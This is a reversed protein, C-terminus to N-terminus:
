RWLSELTNAREGELRTREQIANRLAETNFLSPVYSDNEEKKAKLEADIRGLTERLKANENEGLSGRIAGAGGGLVAGTLAGDALSDNGYIYDILAGVPMGALAGFVADRSASPEDWFEPSKKEPMNLAVKVLADELINM